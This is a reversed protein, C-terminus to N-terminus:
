TKRGGYATGSEDYGFDAAGAPTVWALGAAIAAALLSKM